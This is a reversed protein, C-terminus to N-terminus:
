KELLTICDLEKVGWDIVQQEIVRFGIRYSLYAFIDKSMFSRGDQANAFSAKYDSDNNSHHILVRGGPVLVRYIDKLYEYIDMMEFHVMADYSFLATYKGSELKELNYGNNCYYYIDNYNKFREKCFDINGQLIDVLTLNGAKKIYQPVHRGRGVALEIVDTLDLQRFLNYFKSDIGWFCKISTDSEAAKFYKDMNHIHFFACFDHNFIIRDEGCIEALEDLKLYINGDEEFMEVVEKVTEEDTMSILFPIKNDKVQEYSFVEKDEIKGISKYNKDCFGHVKNGMGKSVLFSYCGRGREGAGFIIVKEQNMVNGGRLYTCIRAVRM